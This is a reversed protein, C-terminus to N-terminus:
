HSTIQSIKAKIDSLLKNTLEDDECHMIEMVLLDDENCPYLEGDKGIEVNFHIADMGEKTDIVVEYYIKPTIKSVKAM